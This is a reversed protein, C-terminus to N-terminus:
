TSRSNTLADWAEQVDSVITSPKPVSYGSRGHRNVLGIQAMWGLAVYIQYSVVTGKKEAYADLLQEGTLLRRSPRWESLCSAVTTIVDAPARHKYENKSKRSWATKVLTDGDRTFIPMRASPKPQLSNGVAAKGAGAAVAPQSASSDISMEAAMSKLAMAWRTIVSLADYEGNAAAKAAAERLRGEADALATQAAPM